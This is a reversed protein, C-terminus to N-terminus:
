KEKYKELENVVAMRIFGSISICDKTVKKIESILNDSIAISRQRNRKKVCEPIDNLM